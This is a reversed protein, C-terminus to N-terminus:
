APPGIGVVRYVDGGWYDNSYLFIKGGSVVPRSQHADPSVVSSTWIQEMSTLDVAGVRGDTTGYLILNGVATVGSRPSVDSSGIRGVVDGTFRDLVTIGDDSAATIVWQDTVTMTTNSSPPTARWQVAGTTVNFATVGLYDMNFYVTKDVVVTAKDGAGQFIFWDSCNQDKPPVLSRWKESGDSQNLAVVHCGDVAFIWTSYASMSVHLYNNSSSMPVSWIVTHTTLDIATVENGTQVFLRNGVVLPSMSTPDGTADPLPTSWLVQGTAASVAHIEPDSSWVYLTGTSTSGVLTPTGRFLAGSTPAARTWLAARNTGDASSYAALTGDARVAFVRSGSVLPEEANYGPTFSFSPAAATTYHKSYTSITDADIRAEGKVLGSHGASGGSTVWTGAASTRSALTLRQQSSRGNDDTIRVTFTAVGVATPTGAFQGDSGLTVGVPLAGSTVAYTYPASGGKGTLQAGYPTSTWAVPLIATGVKPAPGSLGWVQTEFAIPLIVRGNAAVPANFATDSVEYRRLVTGDATNVATLQSPQRYRGLDSAHVWLVDGGVAMGARIPSDTTVDWQEAGTTLSVATVGMDSSGGGEEFLSTPVYVNHDDAVLQGFIARPSTFTKTVGGNVLSRWTVSTVGGNYEQALLLGQTGVLQNINTASLTWGTTGTDNLTWSKVNHSQDLAFVKGSVVVINYTQEPMAKFWRFAGDSLRYAVVGATDSRGAVVYSGSVVMTSYTTGTDTDDTTWIRAHSSLAYASIESSGQCVISTPGLGLRNCASDTAIKWLVEGTSIDRATIGQTGTTGPLSGAAYVVGARVVVANTADTTRWEVGVADANDPGIANENPNYGSQGDDRGVQDWDGAAGVALALVKTTVHGTSDTARFTLSTTGAATPTGRLARHAADFTLGAPPTGATLALTVPATGGVVRVRYEYPVGAQGDPLRTDLFLPTLPEGVDLTLTKTAYQGLDDSVHFTLPTSGVQTPKGGLLGSDSMTIGPPLAEDVTWHLPAKGFTAALQTKYTTFRYGTKLVKTSVTLSGVTIKVTPGTTAALKTTAPVYLRYSQSGTPALYLTTSFSGDAQVSGYNETQWTGSTLHQMEVYSGVLSPATTGSWDRSSNLIGTTGAPTMGGDTLPAAVILTRVTSYSGARTADGVFRARYTYRETQHPRVFSYAGSGDTTTTDLVSYTTTDTTHGQLVVTQGVVPAGTGSESLVGGLTTTADYAVSKPTLVGTLVTAAKTVAVASGVGLTAVLALVATLVILTARASRTRSM